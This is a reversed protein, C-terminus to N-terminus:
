GGKAYELVPLRELALELVDNGWTGARDEEGPQLEPKRSVIFSEPSRVLHGGLARLRGAINEAASGSLFRPWALRTDFAAVPKGEVGGRELRVLYDAVEPIMRHGETPGGVVILDFRSLDAPARGIEFIEVEARTSLSGAIREAIRQTNGSHSAYIVASRM